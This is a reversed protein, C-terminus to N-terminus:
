SQFCCLRRITASGKHATPQGGKAVLYLIGEGSAGATSLTFRGDEDTQAQGLQKPASTSASWLTVASRSVPAGAGTVQGEITQAASAVSMALLLTCALSVYICLRDPVRNVIRPKIVMEEERTHQIRCNLGESRRHM